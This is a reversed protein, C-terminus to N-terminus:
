RISRVLKFAEAAEVGVTAGRWRALHEIARRSRSHPWPRMELAYCDLAKLKADITLSIDVFWDPAFFNAANPTRWETSSMVEFTLITRVTSGPQARLATMVAEHTVRHDVNLDGHHHTYVIEPRVDRVASEISKVVELLPVSDMQNDPFGFGKHRSIGLEMLAATAAASRELAEEGQVGRAGVGDTLFVVEVDDGDRRHKAMAGGCGLVEDDAHAAIVLVTQGAM